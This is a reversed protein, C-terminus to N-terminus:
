GSNRLGTALGNMTLHIGRHVLEDREGARWRELFSVQLLNLPDLYPFRHRVSRALTPNDELLSSHRTVSLIAAVSRAHEESIRQWISERLEPDPVLMRYRSAIALDSKALVMAANSMVTRFFPWRDHMDRLVALRGDDGAVWEDIATGVGYWGPLMIRCQSWAFVWPIARLDEIRTSATRSAPRSGINLEAFENVPTASRFWDVFGPTEYVLNRYARGSVEALERLVEHCRPADEGLGEVDVLTAELTAAVIAELNRRAHDPDAYKATVVEGQETIRLAGDVAGEPQARIADYSPGGGRGVAGGRGHFLRLRVGFEGVARVLELESGYLAWNSALYGGDKNSDSYGIMVEQVDGRAALWGRYRAIGLLSRVTAGARELDAISEFLPVIDLGLSDPTALGVEQLLLAVELVDSVSECKSIVYHPLIDPGVRRVAEAAVRLIALEKSTVEDYTHETAPGVMPRPSALEACLVAVREDEPLSRYDACAGAGRLLEDVVHEHVDANQRLDLGCLHFGFVDISRRVDALRAEAIAAAGHGRLSTDIVQLADDLEHPGTFPSATVSAPTRHPEPVQGVLAIATAELRAHLGRVARRYPEDRRFPSEDGSADALALLEKTPEVLRSSMSLDDGLADLEALLHRLAVTVQRDVALRLVDADVFPNGDRDGGIWSGM